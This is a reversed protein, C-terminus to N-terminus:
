SSFGYFGLTILSSHLTILRRIFPAAKFERMETKNSDYIMACKSKLEDRM